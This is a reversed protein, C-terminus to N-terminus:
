SFCFDGPPLGAALLMGGPRIVALTRDLEDHAQAAELVV